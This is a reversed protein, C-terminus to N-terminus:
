PFYSPQPQCTANCDPYTRNCLDPYFQSDAGNCPLCNLWDVNWCTGHPGGPVPGMSRTHYDRTRDFGNCWVLDPCDDILLSIDTFTHDLQADDQASQWAELNSGAFEGLVRAKYVISKGTDSGFAETVVPDFLEVVLVDRQGTEDSVVLAANPANQPTFGLVEFLQTTPVTGVIRQPRDSFYVTQDSAGNLTLLFVGEEDPSPRWTGQEALQVFLFQPYDDATAPTADQAAASRGLAAAAFGAIAAGITARRTARSRSFQRAFADFSHADM